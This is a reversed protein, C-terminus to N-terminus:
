RVREVCMEKSSKLNQETIRSMAHFRSRQFIEECTNGLQQFCQMSIKLRLEVVM